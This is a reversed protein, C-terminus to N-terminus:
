NRSLSEWPTSQGQSGTLKEVSGSGLAYGSPEEERWSLWNRNGQLKGCDRFVYSVDLGVESSLRAPRQPSIGHGKKSASTSHLQMFCFGSMPPKVLHVPLHKKVDCYAQSSAQLQCLLETLDEM